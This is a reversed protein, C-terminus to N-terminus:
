EEEFEAKVKGSRIARVLAAHDQESQTAYASSFDAIARDFTDSKGMYGSLMASEGSRAHALALARGCWQAYITMEPVGFTDVRASIKIDRLQRIYFHRGSTGVTYGLFMDSAPQMQRYGNIVRQGHNSFVSKGAFPELVSATAEKVQLFLPDNEGATFLLAWCSTGVSGVGVVKIVADRLEYRELLSQHSVHLTGRYRAIVDKLVKPVRGPPCDERHFITPRQDKILHRGGKREALKPFLEEAASKGKERELRKLVRKRISPDKIDAALQDLAMSMYWIELTRMYSLEAMTERYSRVCTMTMDRGISNGLGNDRCAVLVSAALRKIDWEWPGPLTEDLDNISFVVRREPTAYGGFNCLHADGCCQVRLGTNPTGSLDCAMTLAAGRYFTFPSHAMRGRRLPLLEEIRGKESRLVLDVPDPRDPAPKWEGHASRPCKERLAKGAAYLQVRSRAPERKMLNLKASPADTDASM